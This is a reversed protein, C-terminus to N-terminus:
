ADAGEERLWEFWRAEMRDLNRNVKGATADTFVGRQRCLETIARRIAIEDACIPRRKRKPPRPAPFSLVPALPPPLPRAM